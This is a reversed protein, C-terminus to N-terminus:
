FGERLVLRFFPILGKGEHPPHEGPIKQQGMEGHSPFGCFLNVHVKGASPIAKMQVFSKKQVTKNIIKKKILAALELIWLYYSKTSASIRDILIRRLFAM